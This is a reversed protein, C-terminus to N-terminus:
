RAPEAKQGSGGKSKDASGGKDAKDPEEDTQEGPKVARVKAGDALGVGGVTIVQDGAAVGNLVQVKDAERAGVEIMKAHATATADVVMAQTGGEAAPLVAEPPILIADKITAAVITVHVAGGARLREGPNAAQVWVQVTTSNPDVAPSVVTVKGSVSESGDSPAITADNGVKIDKAQQQSLNVRAIVASMDMVTLLPTGANAMEGPYVARDTIVGTMPSTIRTYSLQAAAADYHGKAAEVQSEAVKVMEQRGVDQLSKLHQQATDYQGKAQAYAVQAEDVQKRPLAGQALLQQRSEVLKQAADMAAKAAEVDAQAKQLEEPVTGGSTVRLNAEAQGLQGRSEAAAAALDSNELVALLQGQKVHDGRNVLFRRVPASVKPMINAQDRPYLVADATILVRIVGQTAAAVQVPVVPAPAEAEKGSCAVIPIILTPVLCRRFRTRM